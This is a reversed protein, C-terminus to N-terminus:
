VVNGIKFFIEHSAIGSESPHGLLLNFEFKEDSQQFFPTVFSRTVVRKFLTAFFPASDKLVRSRIFILCFFLMCINALPVCFIRIAVFAWMLGSKKQQWLQEISKSKSIRWKVANSNSKSSAHSTWLWPKLYEEWARNSPKQSIHHQANTITLGFHM